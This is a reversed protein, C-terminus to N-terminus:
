IDKIKKYKELVKIDSIINKSGVLVKLWYDNKDFSNIIIKKSSRKAHIFKNNGLYIACHGPYKNNLKPEYDKLSQRHFFLVDGNKILKLNKCISNEEFLTLKGYSSTMIKTTTSIGYGNEFINIDFLSNYVFWVYGACDFSDPGMSGHVYPKHRQLKAM